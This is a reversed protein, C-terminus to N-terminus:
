DATPVRVLDRTGTPKQKRLESLNLLIPFGEENRGIVGIGRTDSITLVGVIKFVVNSVRSPVHMSSEGEL